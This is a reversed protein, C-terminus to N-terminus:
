RLFSRIIDPIPRKFSDKIVNIDEKHTSFFLPMFKLEEESFDHLMNGVIEMAPYRNYDKSIKISFALIDQKEQMTKTSQLLMQARTVLLDVDEFQVWYTKNTSYTSLFLNIINSIEETKHNLLLKFNDRGIIRLDRILISLDDHLTLLYYYVQDTFTADDIKRGRHTDIIDKISVITNRSKQCILLDNIVESIDNYRLIPNIQTCKHIIPYIDAKVESTDLYRPNKGGSFIFYLSKGISYIDSKKTADRGKGNLDIEPAVYEYTGITRDDSGTLITSDRNEFKGLGLDAIKVIDETLLANAPKIDRHIIGGDHLIKVGTCLQIAYEFLVDESFGKNVADKLSFDCLPMVFYPPVTGLSDEIVEMVNPNNISKMLRVERGFRRISEEDLDKCIKLAYHKKDKCVKYVVGMGGEGLHETIQYTDITEGIDM